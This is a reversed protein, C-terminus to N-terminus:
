RRWVELECVIGGETSMVYIANIDTNPSTDENLVNGASLTTYTQHTPSFSYALEHNGRARLQWAIADRPFKIEYWQNANHLNHNIMHATTPRTEETAVIGQSFPQPVYVRQPPQNTKATQVTSIPIQERKSLYILYALFCITLALSIIAIMSTNDKDAM